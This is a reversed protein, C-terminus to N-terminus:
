RISLYVQLIQMESRKHAGGGSLGQEGGGLKTLQQAARALAASQCLGLNACPKPQALVPHGMQLPVCVFETRHLEQVPALHHPHVNVLLIGM